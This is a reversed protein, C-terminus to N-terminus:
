QHIRKGSQQHLPLLQCLEDRESWVLLFSSLWAVPTARTRFTTKWVQPLRTALEGNEPNCLDVRWVQGTEIEARTPESCPNPRDWQLGKTNCLPNEKPLRFKFSIELSVLYLIKPESLNIFFALQSSLSQQSVALLSNLSQQSVTSLSGISQKKMLGDTSFISRRM